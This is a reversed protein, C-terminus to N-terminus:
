ESPEKTERTKLWAALDATTPFYVDFLICGLGRKALYLDLIHELLRRNTWKPDNGFPEQKRIEALARFAARSISLKHSFVQKTRKTM